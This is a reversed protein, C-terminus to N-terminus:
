RKIRTNKTVYILTFIKKLSERLREKPNKVGEVGVSPTVFDWSAVHSCSLKTNDNKYFLSHLDWNFNPNVNKNRYLYLTLMECLM